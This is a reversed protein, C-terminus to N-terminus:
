FTNIDIFDCLNPTFFCMNRAVLGLFTLCCVLLFLASMAFQEIM